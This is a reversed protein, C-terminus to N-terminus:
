TKSRTKRLRCKCIAWTFTIYYLLAVIKFEGGIDNARTFRTNAVTCKNRIIIDFAHIVRM